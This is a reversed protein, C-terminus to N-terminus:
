CTGGRGGLRQGPKRTVTERAECGGGPWGRASSHRLPASESERLLTEAAASARARVNTRRPPHNKKTRACTLTTVAALHFPSQWQYQGTGRVAKVCATRAAPLPIRIPIKGRPPIGATSESLRRDQTSLWAAARHAEAISCAFYDHRSPAVRLLRHKRPAMSLRRDCLCSGSLRVIRTLPVPPMRGFDGDVRVRTLRATSSSIWM